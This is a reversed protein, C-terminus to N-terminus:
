HLATSWILKEVGKFFQRIRSGEKERAVTNLRDRINEWNKKAVATEQYNLYCIEYQLSDVKMYILELRVRLYHDISHYLEAQSKKEIEKLRIQVESILTDILNRISKANGFERQWTEEPVEKNLLKNYISTAYYSECYILQIKLIVTDILENFSLWDVSEKM